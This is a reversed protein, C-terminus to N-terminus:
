RAARPAHRVFPLVRDARAGPRSTPRRPTALPAPRLAEAPRAEIPGPTAPASRARGFLDPPLPGAAAARPRNFPEAPRLDAFLASRDASLRPACIDATEFPGKTPAAFGMAAANRLSPGAGRAEFAAHAPARGTPRLALCCVAEARDELRLAPGDGWHLIALNRTVSGAGRNALAPGPGGCGILLEALRHDRSAADLRLAAGRPAIIQVGEISLRAGPHAIRLADRPAGPPPEILAGYAIDPRLPDTEPDLRDQFGEGAAPRLLIRRARDCRAHFVAGGPDPADAYLEAIWTEDAAALDPPLAAAFAALNPLDRGRAAGVTVRITRPM